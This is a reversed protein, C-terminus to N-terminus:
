LRERALAPAFHEVLQQTPLSTIATVATKPIQAFTHTGLREGDNDFHEVELLLVSTKQDALAADLADPLREIDQALEMIGDFRHQGAFVSVRATRTGGRPRVVLHTVTEILKEPEFPKTLLACGLEKAKEEVDRLDGSGSTVVVPLDELRPDRRMRELLEWGFAGPLEIDLIVGDFTGDKIIRWAEGVSRAATVRFGADHLIVDALRM